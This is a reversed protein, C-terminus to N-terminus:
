ASGQGNGPGGALSPGNLLPLSATPTRASSQRQAPSSGAARSEVLSVPPSGTRGLLKLIAVAAVALMAAAPNAAASSHRPRPPPRCPPGPPARPAVPGM